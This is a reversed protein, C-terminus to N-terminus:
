PTTVLSRFRPVREIHDRSLVISGLSLLPVDASTVRYIAQARVSGGPRFDSQDIMVQLSGNRLAYGAAVELGRDVGRQEVTDASPAMAAALAAEEAVTALGMQAQVLSTAAAMGVVLLALLLTVMGMEVTAQARPAGRM